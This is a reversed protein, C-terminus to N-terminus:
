SMQQKLQEAEQRQDDDGEDVVEDLISRAGDQDGMDIYAKALDLKTGIMDGSNDFIDDNDNDEDSMQSFDMEGLNAIDTLPDIETEAESAVVSEPEAIEADPESVVADSDAEVDLPADLEILNDDDAERRASDLLGDTEGEVDRSQFVSQAAEVDWAESAGTSFSDLDVEAFTNESSDLHEDGEALSLAAKAVAGSEDLGEPVESLITTEEGSFDIDAVQEASEDAVLGDLEGLVGDELTESLEAGLDLTLDEEIEGGLGELEDTISAIDENALDYGDDAQEAEFELPTDDIVSEDVAALSGLEDPLDAVGSVAELGDTSLDLDDFATNDLDVAVDEDLLAEDTGLDLDLDLELDGLDDLSIEDGAALDLSGLGELEIGSDDDSADVSASLGLSEALEDDTIETDNESLPQPDDFSLEEGALSEFGLDSETLGAEAVAPAASGDAFLPHDPLLERGMEVVQNWMFEDQGALVAYLSEAQAEFSDVDKTAHYIELLKVKLEHRDADANIAEKLLAEAQEYRRYALYVDAEAVPDIESEEAHIAGLGGGFDGISVDEDADVASSEVEASSPAVASNGADDQKKEAVRGVPAMEAFDDEADALSKRRRMVLAVLLLLMVVGGGTYLPNIALIEDLLSVPVPEPQVVPKAPPKAAAAMDVEPKVADLTATADEVQQKLQADAQLAGLSDDKLTLLKQVSQLQKELEDLRLRLDSNEQGRAESSELAVALQRQLSEVADGAAGSGVGSRVKAEEEPTLLQLRAQASDRTTAVPAPVPRSTQEAASAPTAAAVRQQRGVASVRGKASQWDQYQRNAEAAAQQKSLETIVDMQPARLIHGAKLNNINNNGFAEPNEKLLGIMMQPVSVSRDPRMDRAVGWLTDRRNTPGYSGAPAVRQQAAVAATPTQRVVQATQTTAASVRGTQSEKEFVPPDLLLTYERMMQGSSWNITLIFDLFPEKIAKNSIVKIYPAGAGSSVLEFELERLISLRDIGVREFADRSALSVNLSKLEDSTASFLKIKADLPENLATSVEIEGMGLAHVLGSTVMMCASLAVALRRKKFGKTLIM